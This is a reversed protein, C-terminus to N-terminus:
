PRREKLSEFFLQHPRQAGGDLEDYDARHGGVGPTDFSDM